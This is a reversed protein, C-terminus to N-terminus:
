KELCASERKSEDPAFTLKDAKRVNVAALSQSPAPSAYACWLVWGHMENRQPTKALENLAGSQQQDFACCIEAKHLPSACLISELEMVGLPAVRQADRPGPRSQNRMGVNRLKCFRKESSQSVSSNICSVSTKSARVFLLACISFM